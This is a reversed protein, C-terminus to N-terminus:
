LTYTAPWGRCPLGRVAHLLLRQPEVVLAATTQATSGHFPHRCISMPYNSHDALFRMATPATLRGREAELLETLRQQRRHSGTCEPEDYTEWRVLDSDIHNAHVLIGDKAEVIAHGHDTNEVAVIRGKGDGITLNGPVTIGHKQVLAVVDEVSASELVLRRFLSWPIRGLGRGRVYISNGFCAMGTSSLGFVGFEGAYPM